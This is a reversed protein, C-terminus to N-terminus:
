TVTVVVSDWGTAGSPFIQARRSPQTVGRNDTARVQLQHLGPAADWTWLWQRWTDIGDAAALRATHWPGNDVRVQVAAIGTAPAWAVGAV